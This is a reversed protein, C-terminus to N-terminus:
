KIPNNSPKGARRPYKSPTVNNKKILYLTREEGNQLKYHWSNEQQGGCVAIANEAEQIEMAGLPGKYLAVSGGMKVLPLALEALVATKAVAKCLILDYRARHEASQGYDEARGCLVEAQNINLNTIAETLFLAKKRNADMFYVKIDPKCIKVPLGPLGGGSGLDVVETGPNFNFFKLISLSDYIQKKIIGEATKEGTLRTKKLGSLLLIVYQRLQEKKSSSATKLELAELMDEIMQDIHKSTM